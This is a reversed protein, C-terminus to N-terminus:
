LKLFWNSTTALFKALDHDSDSLDSLRLIAGKWHEGIEWKGKELSPKDNYNIEGKLPYGSIYFYADGAMSDKMALGFGIGVRELPVYIGTDFHHPWIRTEAEKKLQNCVWDCAENAMKRYYKWRDIDKSIIPKIQGSAFPYDPIEFHLDDSFGFPNLGLKKLNFSLENEVEGLIKNLPNVSEIKDNSSNLWEFQLNSLNLTLIVMGFEPSNIWRGIIRDEVSDFYLNTHSDDEKKPVFTRNAKAIPQCLFHLQQDTNNYEQM